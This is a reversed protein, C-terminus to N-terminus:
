FLMLVGIFIGGKFNQVGGGYIGEKIKMNKLNYKEKVCVLWNNEWAVLAGKM